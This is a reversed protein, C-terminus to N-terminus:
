KKEEEKPIKLERILKGVRVYAEELYPKIDQHNRYTVELEAQGMYRLFEPDDLAKRFAEDLKGLVSPPMGKPGAIMFVGENVFDYGLERLIPVSPLAKMRKEGHTVLMRLTGARVHPMWVTGASCATVHGGLLPIIPDGTSHPVHTWQVGDQKAIFEMALHQPLGVGPTTYSVKGPNKRAYDVLDKLTKWPSDSRVALGTETAAFHMVPTFDDLKYPVARFQPIRVLVSSACSMIHYGDPKDKAIISAAVSGGGGGNNTIVVPQGLFKEAKGALLRSSMEAALGPGWSILLNVPKTPFEQAFSFTPMSFLLLGMIFVKRRVKWEKPKM